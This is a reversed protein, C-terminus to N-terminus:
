GPGVRVKAAPPVTLLGYDGRDQEVGVLLAASQYWRCNFVFRADQM